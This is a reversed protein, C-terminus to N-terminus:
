RIAVQDVQLRAAELVERELQVALRVFSVLRREGVGRTGSRVAIALAEDRVSEGAATTQVGLAALRKALEARDLDGPAAGTALPARARPPARLEERRAAPPRGARVINAMASVFERSEIGKEVGAGRVRRRPRAAARSPSCFALGPRSSVVHLGYRRAFGMVNREARFGHRLEDFRVVRGRREPGAALRPRAAVDPDARAIGENTVITPDSCAYVRGKGWRAALLVPKAGREGTGDAVFIPAWDGNESSLTARCALGPPRLATLPSLSAPRAEGIPEPEIGHSGRGRHRAGQLARQRLM